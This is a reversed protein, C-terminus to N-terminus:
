DVDRPVQWDSDWSMSEYVWSMLLYDWCSDHNFQGEWHSIASM